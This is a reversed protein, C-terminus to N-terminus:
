TTTRRYHGYVRLVKIVIEMYSATNDEVKVLLDVILYMLEM